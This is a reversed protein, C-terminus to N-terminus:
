VHFFPFLVSNSTELATGYNVNSWISTKIAQWLFEFRPSVSIVTKSEIGYRSYVIITARRMKRQQRIQKHAKTCRQLVALSKDPYLSFFDYRLLWKIQTIHM